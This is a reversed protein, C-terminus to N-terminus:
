RAGAMEGTRIWSTSSVKLMAPTLLLLGIFFGLTAIPGIVSLDGRTVCLGAVAPGAAMGWEMAGLTAASLRGDRDMVAVMTMLNPVFFFWVFSFAMLGATYPYRRGSVMAWVCCVVIFVALVIKHAMRREGGSAIALASGAMAVLSGDALLRSVSDPGIGSRIGLRESYTFVTGYAIYVVLTAFPLLILGFARQVTGASRASVALAHRQSLNPFRRVIVALCLPAVTVPILISRPGLESRLPPVMYLIVAGLLLMLIMFTGYIRSPDLLRSVAAGMLGFGIGEGVGAVARVLLIGWIPTVFMSELNGLALLAIALLLLARTPVRLVLLSVAMGGLGGGTLYAAAAYGAQGVSLGFSDVYMGVLMPTLLNTALVVLGLAMIPVTQRWARDKWM